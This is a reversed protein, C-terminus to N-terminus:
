KSIFLNNEILFEDVIYLYSRTWLDTEIDTLTSYTESNYFQKMAENVSINLRKNIELIIKPISLRILFEIQNIKDMDKGSMNNAEIYHHLIDNIDIKRSKLADEVWKLLYENGVTHLVDYSEEVIDLVDTKALLNFVRKGDTKYKKALLEIVNIRLSLKRELLERSIDIM